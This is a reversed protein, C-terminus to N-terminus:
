AQDDRGEALAMNRVCVACESYLWLHRLDVEAVLTRGCWAAPAARNRRWRHRRNGVTSRFWRDEAYEASLPGLPVGDFPPPAAPRDLEVRIRRQGERLLDRVDAARVLGSRLEIYAEAVAVLTEAVDRPLKVTIEDSTM